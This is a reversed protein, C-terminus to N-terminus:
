AIRLANQQHTCLFVQDIDPYRVHWDARGTSHLAWRLLIDTCSFDTENIKFFVFFTCHVRVLPWKFKRKGTIIAWDFDLSCAVEWIYLGVLAHMFNNFITADKALEEPSTWDPM